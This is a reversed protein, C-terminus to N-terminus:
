HSVPLSDIYVLGRDRRKVRNIGDVKSEGYISFSYLSHWGWLEYICSTVHSHRDIGPTRFESPDEALAIRRSFQPWLWKPWANKEGRFSRHSLLLHLQLGCDHKKPHNHWLLILNVKYVFSNWSLISYRM